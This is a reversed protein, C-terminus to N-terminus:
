AENNSSDGNYEGSADWVRDIREMETELVRTEKQLYDWDSHSLPVGDCSRWISIRPSTLCLSIQALDWVKFNTFL